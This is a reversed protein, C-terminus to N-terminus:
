RSLDVMWQGEQNAIDVALRVTQAHEGEAAEERSMEVAGLLHASLLRV